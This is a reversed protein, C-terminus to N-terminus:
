HAAKELVAFSGVVSNDVTEAFKDVVVGVFETVKDFVVVVVVVVFTDLAVLVAVSNGVEVVMNIGAIKGFEVITDVVAAAVAVVISCSRLEIM